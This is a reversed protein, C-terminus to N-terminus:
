PSTEHSPYLTSTNDTANNRFEHKPPVSASKSLVEDIIVRLLNQKFYGSISAGLFHYAGLDRPGAIDRLGDHVNHKAPRIPDHEVICSELLCVFPQPGSSTGPEFGGF